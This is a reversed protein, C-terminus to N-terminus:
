RSRWGTRPSRRRSRPAINVMNSYTVVTVDSGERVVAASGLPVVLDGEPVDARQGTIKKNELYIVPDDDAIAARLLGKADHRELARRGQHRPHQLVAGRPEGLAAGGVLASATPPGCCWRCAVQGGFMYRFKAAQNVIEDMAGLTFEVFSMSAVSRLGTM